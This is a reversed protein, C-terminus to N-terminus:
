LCIIVIAVAALVGLYRYLKGHRLQLAAAEAARDSLHKVATQLHREQDAQDSAGLYGSLDRLPALDEDKLNLPAPRQLLAAALAEAPSLASAGGLNRGWARFMAGIEGGAAVAARALAAPLPTASFRIETRLAELGSQLAGLQRLRRSLADAAIAGLRAGAFIICAAGIFATM